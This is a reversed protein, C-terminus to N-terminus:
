RLGAQHMAQKRQAGGDGVRGSVWSMQIKIGSKKPRTEKKLRELGKALQVDAGCYFLVM